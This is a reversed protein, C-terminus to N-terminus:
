LDREEKILEYAGRLYLDLDEIRGFRLEEQDFDTRTETTKFIYALGSAPDVRPVSFKVRRTRSNILDCRVRLSTDIAHRRNFKPYM